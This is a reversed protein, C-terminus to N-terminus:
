RQRSEDKEKKITLMNSMRETATKRFQTEIHSWLGPTKNMVKKSFEGYVRVGDRTVPKAYKSHEGQTWTGSRHNDPFGPIVMEKTSYEATMTNYREDCYYEFGKYLMDLLLQVSDHSSM